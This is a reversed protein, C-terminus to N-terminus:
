HKYNFIQCLISSNFICIQFIKSLILNIKQNFEELNKKFILHNAIRRHRLIIKIDYLKSSKRLYTLLFNFLKKDHQNIFYEQKLKEDISLFSNIIETQDNFLSYIQEKTPIEKTLYNESM